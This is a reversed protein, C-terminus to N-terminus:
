NVSEVIKSSVGSWAEKYAVGCGVPVNIREIKADTFAGAYMSPPTTDNVINITMGSLTSSGCGEFVSYHLNTIDGLITIDELATCGQFMYPGFRFFNEGFTVEKLATCNEFAYKGSEVIYGSDIYATKLSTCGKFANDDILKVNNRIVVGTISTNNVFGWVTKVRIGKYKTPIVIVKDTATGIGMVKYYAGDVDEKLEYALGETYYEHGCRKCMYDEGYDHTGIAPIEEQAIIVENCTSCHSGATKGPTTCLPEIGEDVVVAHGSAPIVEQVILIQECVSCHKGETKGDTTCTAEVGEDVVETHNGTAPIETRGEGPAGCVTCAEGGVYGVTGCTPEVRGTSVFTHNGTAPLVQQAVIITNCTSCHSGATKGNEGCTPSVAKDTVVDHGKAPIVTQEKLVEECVACHLGASLGSETCTAPIAQDPVFSHGLMPIKKKAIIETGCDACYSYATWGETTCTPDVQYVNVNNHAEKPIVETKTANCGDNQCNYTKVGTEVCTAAKTVEGSTFTHSAKDTRVTKEEGCIGCTWFEEGNRMCTADKIVKTPEKGYDHECEVGCGVAFAAMVVACLSLLLYKVKFKM